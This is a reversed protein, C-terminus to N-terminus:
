LLDIPLMRTNSYIAALVRLCDMIAKYKKAHVCKEDKEDM